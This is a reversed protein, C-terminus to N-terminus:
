AGSCKPMRLNCPEPGAMKASCWWYVGRMAPTCILAPLAGGKSGNLPVPSRKRWLAEGCVDASPGGPQGRARRMRLGAGPDVVFGVFLLAGTERDPIACFFPRDVVMSFRYGLGRLMTVASAAAAETGEENVEIFAKHIVHGIMMLPGAGMGLVDVGALEVGGLAVLNPLLHARAEEAQALLM